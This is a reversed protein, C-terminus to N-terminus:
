ETPDPARPSKRGIGAGGPSAGGLQGCSLAPGPEPGANPAEIATHARTASRKPRGPKLEGTRRPFPGGHASELRHLAVTLAREVFHTLTMPPVWYVTNRLRNLLAQPLSVTFRRTRPCSPVVDRKRPGRKLAMPVELLSDERRPKSTPWPGHRWASARRVHCGNSAGAGTQIPVIWFSWFWPVAFTRSDRLEIGAAGNTAM